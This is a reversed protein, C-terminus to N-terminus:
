NKINELANELTNLGQNKDTQIFKGYRDLTLSAHKHGLQGQVYQIPEGLSLMLSAYAHRLDHFRVHRLGAITLTRNLYERIKNQSYYKGNNQFLINQRSKLRYESLSEYLANSIKVTRNEDTKTTHILERRFSKNVSIERNELDIDSWELPIIEGLRM